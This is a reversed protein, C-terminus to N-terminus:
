FALTTCARLVSVILCDPSALKSLEKETVITTYLLLEHPGAAYAQRMNASVEGLMKRTATSQLLRTPVLRQEGHHKPGGWGKTFSALLKWHM